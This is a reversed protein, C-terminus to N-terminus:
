AKLGQVIASSRWSWIFGSRSRTEKPRNRPNLSPRVKGKVVSCFSVIFIKIPFENDVVTPAWADPSMVPLFWYRYYNEEFTRCFDWFMNGISTSFKLSSERGKLAASTIKIRSNRDRQGAVSYTEPTQSSILFFQFIYTEAERPGGRFIPSFIAM